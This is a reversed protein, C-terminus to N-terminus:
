IRGWEFFDERIRLNRGLINRATRGLAWKQRTNQGFYTVQSGFRMSCLGNRRKYIADKMLRITDGEIVLPFRTAVGYGIHARMTVLCLGSEGQMLSINNRAGETRDFITENLMKARKPYIRGENYSIWQIKTGNAETVVAILYEGEDNVKAIGCAYARTELGIGYWELGKKSDLVDEWGTLIVESCASDKDYCPVALYDGGLDIGGVHECSLKRLFLGKSKSTVILQGNGKHSRSIIAGARDPLGVIGQIHNGWRDGLDDAPFSDFNINLVM